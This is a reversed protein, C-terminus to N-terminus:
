DPQGVPQLTQSGPCYWSLPACVLQLSQPAPFNKDLEPFALVWLWGFSQLLQGAARYWGEVPWAEQGTQPGPCYWFLAPCAPQMLQPAPFYM